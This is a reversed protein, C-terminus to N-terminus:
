PVLSAPIKLLRCSLYFLWSVALTVSTVCLLYGLTLLSRHGDLNLMWKLETSIFGLFLPHVLYVTFSAASLSQIFRTVINGFPGVPKHVLSKATLFIIASYVIIQPSSYNFLTENLTAPSQNLTLFSTGLITIALCALAALGYAAYQKKQIEFDRLAYGLIFYGSFGTAVAFIIPPAIGTLSGFTPLVSAGAFWLVLFYNVDKKSAGRLFAKLIPTALYLVILYYLYQLHYCAPQNIVARWDLHM